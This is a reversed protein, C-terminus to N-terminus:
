ITESNINLGGILSEMYQMIEIKESFEKYDDAIIIDMHSNPYIYLNWFRRKLLDKCTDVIKLTTTEGYLQTIQGVMNNITQQNMERVINEIKYKTDQVDFFPTKPFGIRMRYRTYVEITEVGSVSELQAVFNKTIDFNTYLMWFDFRSSAMMNDTIPLIGYPTGIAPKMSSIIVDDDVEDKEEMKYPDNWQEWAIKKM